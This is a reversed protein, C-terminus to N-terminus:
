QERYINVSEDLGFTSPDARGTAALVFDYADGTIREGGGSVQFEPVGDLALTAPRWGQQDLTDAVHSVAVRLGPDDRDPARGLAERIDQAHLYLDYWIAEVARGLTAGGADVPPPGNWAEDDFVGLLDTAVKGADRLEDALEEPSRGKRAAVEREVHGPDAFEDLRGSAIIAMTGVVHASVDAVTWGECRTRTHWAQDDLSRLLGEFRGLGDATGAVVDTRALVM